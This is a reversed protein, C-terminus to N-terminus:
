NVPPVISSAIVRRIIIWWLVAAIIYFMQSLIIELTTLYTNSLFVDYGIRILIISLFLYCIQLGTKTFIYKNTICYFLLIFIVFCSYKEPNSGIGTFIENLGFTSALAIFISYIRLALLRGKFLNVKM